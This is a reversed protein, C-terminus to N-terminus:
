RNNENNPIITESLHKSNNGLVVMGQTRFWYKNEKIFYKKLQPITQITAYDTTVFYHKGTVYFEKTNRSPTILVCGQPVLPLINEIFQVIDHEKEIGNKVGLLYPVFATDFISKSTMVNNITGAYFQLTKDWEFSERTKIQIAKRVLIVMYHIYARRLLNPNILWYLSNIAKKHPLAILPPYWRTLADLLEGISPYPKGQNNYERYHYYKKFAKMWAITVPDKDYVTVSKAGAQALLFGSNGHGPIVLVDKEKIASHIPHARDSGLLISSLYREAGMPYIQVEKNDSLRTVRRESIWKIEAKSLITHTSM